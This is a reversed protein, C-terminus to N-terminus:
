SRLLSYVAFVFTNVSPTFAIALGSLLLFFCIKRALPKGYNQSLYELRYVDIKDVLGNSVAKICADSIEEEEEPAELNPIDDSKITCIRIIRDRADRLRPPCKQCKELRAIIRLSNELSASASRLSSYRLKFDIFSSYSDHLKFHKPSLQSFIGTGLGLLFLGIYFIEIQNRFIFTSEEGTSSILNRINDNLIFIFGLFPVLITLRVVKSNTFRALTSWRIKDIFTEDNM